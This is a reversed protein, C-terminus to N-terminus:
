SLCPPLQPILHRLFDKLNDKAQDLGKSGVPSYLEVLAVGPRRFRLQDFLLKLRIKFYSDTIFDGVEYFYFLIKEGEPGKCRLQNIKVTRNWEPILVSITGEKFVKNGLGGFCAEPSHFGVQNDKYFVVAFWIENDGKFYNRILVSDAELVKYVREAVPQEQGVWRGIKLPIPLEQMPKWGAYLFRHLWVISGTVVLLCILVIFRNTLKQM